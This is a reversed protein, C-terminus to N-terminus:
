NEKFTDTLHPTVLTGVNSPIGSEEYKSSEEGIIFLSINIQHAMNREVVPGRTSSVTARNSQVREKKVEIVEDGHHSPNCGM